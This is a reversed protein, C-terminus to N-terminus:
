SYTGRDLISDFPVEAAPNCYECSIVKKAHQREIKRKRIFRNKLSDPFASVM